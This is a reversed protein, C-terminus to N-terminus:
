NLWECVEDEEEDVEDDVIDDDEQGHKADGDSDNHEDLGDPAKGTTGTSSEHHMGGRWRLGLHLTSEKSMRYDAVSRGDELQRGAFLLRQDEVSIQTRDAIKAKIGDITDLSSSEVTITTGTLTKVFLQMRSLMEYVRLELTAGSEINAGFLTENDRLKAGSKFIDILHSTPKYGRIERISSKLSGISDSSDMDLIKIEAGAPWPWEAVHVQIRGRAYVATSIREDHQICCDALLCADDFNSGRCRIHLQEMPIDRELAESQRIISKIAGMTDTDRAEIVKKCGSLTTLNLRIYGCPCQVVILSSDTGIKYHELTLHDELESEKTKAAYKLYLHQQDISIGQQEEIERKLTGITLWPVVVVAVRKDPQIEM